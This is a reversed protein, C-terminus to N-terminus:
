VLLAVADLDRLRLEAPAKVAADLPSILKRDVAPPISMCTCHGTFKVPARLLSIGFLNPELMPDMEVAEFPLQM